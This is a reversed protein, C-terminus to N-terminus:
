SREGKGEGLPLPTSRSKRSEKAQKRKAQKKNKGQRGTGKMEKAGENKRQMPEKRGRSEEEKKEAFMMM